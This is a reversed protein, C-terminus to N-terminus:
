LFMEGMLLIVAITILLGMKQYLSVGLFILIYAIGNVQTIKYFKKRNKKNKLYRLVKKARYAITKKNKGFILWSIASEGDLTDLFVTNYFASIMNIIAAGLMASSLPYLLLSDVFTTSTFLIFLAGSLLLNSEIGALDIQANRLPAKVKARDMLVCGSPLISADSWMIGAEFFDGGYAICSIIHAMEHLVCGAILGLLVGLIFYTDVNFIYEMSIMRYLGLIFVPICLIILLGNLIKAPNSKSTKKQPLFISYIFGDSMPLKRGYRLFRKECFYDFYERCEEESFGEIRLPDHKGNLQLLYHKQKEDLVDEDDFLGDRAITQGNEERLLIWNALCPYPGNVYIKM